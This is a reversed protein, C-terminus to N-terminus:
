IDIWPDSSPQFLSATFAGRRRTPSAVVAISVLEISDGCNSNQAASSAAAASAKEGAAGRASRAALGAASALVREAPRPRTTAGIARAGGRRADCASAMATERGASVGSLTPM